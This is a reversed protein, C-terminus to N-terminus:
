RSPSLSRREGVMGSVRAWPANRRHGGALAAPQDHVEGVPLIRWKRKEVHGPVGGGAIAGLIDDDSLTDFTRDTEGVYSAGGIWIPFDEREEGTLLWDQHRNKIGRLCALAEPTLDNGAREIRALRAWINRQRIDEWESAGLEAVYLHRPPGEILIHALRERHELDSGRWLLPLAGLLEVQTGIAWLWKAPDSLIIEIAENSPIAAAHHM